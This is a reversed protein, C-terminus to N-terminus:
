LFTNQQNFLEFLLWSKKGQVICDQRSLIQTCNQVERMEKRFAEGRRLFTVHCQCGFIDEQTDHYTSRVLEFPVGKEQLSYSEKLLKDKELGEDCM